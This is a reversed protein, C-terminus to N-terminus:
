FNTAIEILAAKIDSPNIPPVLFEIQESYDIDEFYCVICLM